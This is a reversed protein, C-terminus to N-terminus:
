FSLESHLVLRKASPFASNPQATRFNGEFVVQSIMEPTYVHQLV